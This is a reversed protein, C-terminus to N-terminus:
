FHVHRACNMPQLSEVDAADEMTINRKCKRKSLMRSKTM